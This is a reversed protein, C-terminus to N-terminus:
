INKVFIGSWEAMFDVIYDEIFDVIIDGIYEVFSFAYNAMMAPRPL